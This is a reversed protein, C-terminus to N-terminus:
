RVVPGQDVHVTSTPVITAKDDSFSTLEAGIKKVKAGLRDGFADVKDRTTQFSDEVRSTLSEVGETAERVIGLPRACGAAIGWAAALAGLLALRTYRGNM